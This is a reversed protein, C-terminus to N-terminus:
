HKNLREYLRIYQTAIKQPNYEKKITSLANSGLKRLFTDKNLMLNINEALDEYDDAKVLVGNHGNSIVEPIAGIDSSVLPKACGMAELLSIPISTPGYACAYPLAIIKAKHILEMIGEHSISGFLRVHREVKLKRVLLRYYSLRKDLENNAIIFMADKHEEVIRPIAKILNIDGRMGQGKGIFVVLNNGVPIYRSALPTFAPRIVFVESVRNSRIIRDRLYESTSVNVVSRFDPKLLKPM